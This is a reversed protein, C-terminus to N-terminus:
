GTLKQDKVALEVSKKLAEMLNIIKPEESKESEVIERGEVKLEILKLVNERYNDRYGGFDFNKITTAAVLTNTLDKEGPEPVIDEVGSAIETEPKVQDQYYLVSMAILKNHPRLVVLHERATLIISAMAFRGNEAMSDRLLAYPKQGIKGDPVLYYNQGGFYMPDIRDAEVFGGIHLTHDNQSRLKSLEEDRIIVYQDKANEYGRVIDQQHVEGHVKCVKQYNIRQNCDKHLQHMQVERGTEHATVAKVPITILSLQIFGKWVSHLEM